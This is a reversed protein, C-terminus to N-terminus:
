HKVRLPKLLVESGIPVFGCALFARLSAANGPSVQAWVLEDRPAVALGARILARGAGDSRGIGDDLEVSIELRGVLGCGLTLVGRDDGWVRVDRRHARARAVRPHRELDDREPLGIGPRARAVLVADLSGIWGEPGAIHRLVDPHTAGGFGDAGLAALEASARDTLAYSHGTLEVVAHTGGADPPLVEVSGDPAPFRGVAADALVATLPHVSGTAM